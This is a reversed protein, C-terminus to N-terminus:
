VKEGRLRAYEDAPAAFFHGCLFWFPAAIVHSVILVIWPQHAWVLRFLESITAHDNQSVGFLELAFAGVLLIFAGVSLCGLGAAVKKQGPTM